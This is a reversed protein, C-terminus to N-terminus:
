WPERERLPARRRAPRQHQAVPQEAAETAAGQGGRRREAATAEFLSTAAATLRPLALLDLSEWVLDVRLEPSFADFVENTLADAEENESRPRWAVSMLLDARELQLSLEMLILYLPFKTSMLKDLVFGNGLNDTAATVSLLAGRAPCGRPRLGSPLSASWPLWSNSPASQGFRTAGFSPGPFRPATSAFRIGALVHQTM